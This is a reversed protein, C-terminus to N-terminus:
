QFASSQHLRWRWLYDEWLCGSLRPVCHAPLGGEPLFTKRCFFLCYYVSVIVCFQLYRLNVATISDEHTTKVWWDVDHQKWVDCQINPQFVQWIQAAFIILLNKDSEIKKTSVCLGSADWFASATKKSHDFINIDLMASPLKWNYMLRSKLAAPRSTQERLNWPMKNCLSTNQIWLNCVM